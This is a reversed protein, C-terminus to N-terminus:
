AVSSPSRTLWARQRWLGSIGVRSLIFESHHLTRYPKFESVQCFCHHTVTARGEWIGWYVRVNGSGWRFTKCSFQKTLIAGTKPLLSVQLCRRNATLKGTNLMPNRKSFCHYENYKNDQRKCISCEGLVEHHWFVGQSSLVTSPISWIRVTEKVRCYSVPSKNTTHIANTHRIIARHKMGWLKETSQRRAMIRFVSSVSSACGARQQCM